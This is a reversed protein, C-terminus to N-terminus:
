CGALGGGGGKHMGAQAHATGASGVPSSALLVAAVSALMWSWRTTM